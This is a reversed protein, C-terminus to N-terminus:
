WSVLLAALGHSLSHFGATPTAPDVDLPLGPFRQFLGGVHEPVEIEGQRIRSGIVSGDLVLCGNGPRQLLHRVALVLESNDPLLGSRAKSAGGTNRM